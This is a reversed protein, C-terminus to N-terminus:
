APEGVGASEVDFFYTIRKRPSLYAYVDPPLMAPRMARSITLDAEAELNVMVAEDRPAVDDYLLVWPRLSKKPNVSTVVAVADNSLQVLSGPPYVGLSRIMLQLVQADFKTRRRSFIFSLAEHPTMAQALDIPNCLNDYFNVLSVVRALPTIQELELSNPHGTGDALEHHQAIIALVEPQVQVQRGIRVGYEVHMARLEREPRTYEEPPKRVIGAPIDMLGIDHLLAGTGLIRAQEHTFGLGKALMMCLISVNLGHYYVEEGGCRDGMVRLTVEPHDLFQAVMEDVLGGIEELTERPSTLLNKNLRHMVAAAKLFSKETRAIAQRHALLQEIRANKEAMAPEPLAPDAAPSPPQPAEAVSQAASEPHDPQADSLDPDYRFRRVKLARLDRIQQESTIKFTNLTFPHMFWPLDIFVHLGIRLQDPFAYHHQADSINEQLMSFGTQEALDDMAPMTGADSRRGARRKRSRRLRGQLRNGRM